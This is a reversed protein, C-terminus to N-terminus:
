KFRTNLRDQWERAAKEQRAAYRQEAIELVKLAETEDAGYKVLLKGMQAREPSLRHVIFEGTLLDQVEAKDGVSADKLLIEALAPKNHYVANRLYVKRDDSDLEPLSMLLDFAASTANEVVDLSARVSIGQATKEAKILTLGGKKVLDRLRDSDGQEAAELMDEVTVPAPVPQARPRSKSLREALARFLARITNRM